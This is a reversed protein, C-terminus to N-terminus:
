QLGIQHEIVKAAVETGIDKAIGLVWNGAGKLAQLVGSRDGNKACDEAAALETAAAVQDASTARKSAESRLRELEQALLNLNPMEFQTVSQNQTFHDARVNDGAAGVNGAKINFTSM